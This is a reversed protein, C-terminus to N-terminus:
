QRPRRCRSQVPTSAKIYTGIGGFWLLDVKAKLLAKILAPPSLKADDSGILAQVEPTM